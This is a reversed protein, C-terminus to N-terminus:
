FAIVKIEENTSVTITFQTDNLIVIDAGIVEGTATDVVQVIIDKKARLSHTHTTAVNATPTYTEVYREMATTPLTQYVETNGQKVIINGDASNETSINFRSLNVEHEEGDTEKIKFVLTSNDFSASEVNIDTTGVGALDISKTQEAGNEGTYRVTLTSGHLSLDGLTTQTELMSIDEIAIVEGFANTGLVNKSTLNGLILGSHDLESSIIKTDHRFTKM